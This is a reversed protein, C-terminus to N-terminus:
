EALVTFAAKNSSWNGLECKARISVQYEGPALESGALTTFEGESLLTMPMWHQPISDPLDISYECFMAGTKPGAVAVTLVSSRGTLFPSTSWVPQGVSVNLKDLAKAGSSVTATRSFIPRQSTAVGALSQERKRNPSVLLLAAVTLDALFIYIPYAAGTYSRFDVVLLTLINSATYILYTSLTEEYPQRWAHRITPLTAALDVLVTMTVALESSRSVLWVVLGVGAGALCLVDFKELTRDGHRIGLVVVMACEVGTMLMLVGAPIQHDLLAATGGIALVVVFVMMILVMVRM